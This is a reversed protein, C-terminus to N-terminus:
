AFGLRITHLGSYVTVTHCVRTITHVTSKGHFIAGNVKLLTQLGGCENKLRKLQEKDFLGPISRM